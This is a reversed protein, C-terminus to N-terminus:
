LRLKILLVHYLTILGCWLQGGGGGGLFFVTLTTKTQFDVSVICFCYLTIWFLLTFPFPIVVMWEVGSQIKTLTVPFHLLFIKGIEEYNTRDLTTPTHAQTMLCTSLLNSWRGEYADHSNGESITYWGHCVFSIRLYWWFASDSDFCFCVFMFICQIASKVFVLFQM